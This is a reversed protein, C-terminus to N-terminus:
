LHIHQKYRYFLTKISAESGLVSQKPTITRQLNYYQYNWQQIM